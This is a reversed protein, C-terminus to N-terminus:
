NTWWGQKQAHEFLAVIDKREQMTVDPHWLDVLLIVRKSDSENWVEHEYSDDLVLAKGECWSRTTPGVRIGCETSASPVHLPLHVRLRFNMPGSHAAISSKPSLTSFFSYGFPTGAFLLGEHRLKQLITATQPFQQCFEHQVKGKLMFSHWDWQGTHLKHETEKYNYDSPPLQEFSNYEDCIMSWNDELYQVAHQLEPDQYAVRTNNESDLQTWFPLSRLGPLFVMSPAPRHLSTRLLSPGKVIECALIPDSSGSNSSLTRAFLNARTPISDRLLLPHFRTAKMRTVLCFSLCSLPELLSFYIIFAFLLSRPM